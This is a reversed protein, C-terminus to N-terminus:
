DLRYARPASPTWPLTRHAAALSASWRRPALGARPSVTALEVGRDPQLSAATALNLYLFVMSQDYYWISMFTVAHSFLSAGLAWALWRSSLTAHPDHLCRGLRSFVTVMVAIFLLMLPLGGIVGLSLYQNTIDTHDPSWPLGYPMWHITRDTGAMWWESLHAFASRIIESRHWGTSSGTLDIRAMLFYPPDKMVMSLVLYSAVAGWRFWRLRDRFPWLALAFIGWMATLIPGSSTSAYIMGVAAIVGLIVLRRSEWWLALILPLCGAAITGALISVDFPGQARVHGGRIVPSDQVGGFVSFVNYATAKECLMLVALPTLLVPIFRLTRLIDTRTSCFIRFLAYLGMADLANGLRTILQTAPDRHFAVSAILWIGWLLMLADTVRLGGNLTEGRLITRLLGICILIRLVTFHFPGIEVGVRTMYCATVLIPLVALHRPVALMAGVGVLVYLILFPTM